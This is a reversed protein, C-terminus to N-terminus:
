RSNSLFVILCKIFYLMESKDNLYRVDTFRVTASENQNKLINMLANVSTYHYRLVRNTATFNQTDPQFSKITFSNFCIREPKNFNINEIM